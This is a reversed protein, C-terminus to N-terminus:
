LEQHYQDNLFQFTKTDHFLYSYGKSLFRLYSSKPMELEFDTADRTPLEQVKQTERRGKLQLIICDECM